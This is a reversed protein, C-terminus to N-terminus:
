SRTATSGLDATVLHEVVNSWDFRHAGWDRGVATLSIVTPCGRTQLSAVVSGGSTVFTLQDVQTGGLSCGGSNATHSPLANIAQALATAQAEGFTARTSGPVDCPSQETAPATCITVSRVVPITHAQQERTGVEVVAIAVVVAAIALGVLVPPVTWYSLRERM